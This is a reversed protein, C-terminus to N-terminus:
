NLNYSYYACTKLVYTIAHPIYTLCRTQSVFNCYNSLVLISTYGDTPCFSGRYPM